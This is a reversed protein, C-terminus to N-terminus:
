GFLKLVAKNRVHKVVSVTKNKVNNKLLAGSGFTMTLIVTDEAESMDLNAEVTISTGNFLTHGLNCSIVDSDTLCSYSPGGHQINVSRTTVGPPLNLKVEPYFIYDAQNTIDLQLTYIRSDKYIVYSENSPSILAASINVSFLCEEGTCM